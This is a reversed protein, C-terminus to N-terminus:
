IARPKRSPPIGSMLRDYVEEFREACADASHWKMAFKRSEIGIQRRKDADVLLDRLVEYITAESASVLPCTEISDLRTQGAPEAKNLYCVTPRGLMMGERATAGYRGHNLQDVIVDAQAQIFRVDKSAIGTVFELRVNVGEARLREIATMVAGTGKLNREDTARFEFNGVAHYVILEGEKRPLRHREPIEIDPHWVSPDLATTLPERYSKPGSQYDLAPFGECSILDCFMEVKHGWALNMRDNCVHSVNQWVCRDCSGGSWRRFTTQSVGDLCGCVSYGIKVGLRKLKIFDLPMQAFPEGFDFESPFLSMHGRGYFHLMRFRDMNEAFFTEINSRMQPESADFLNLDDGHYFTANPGDPNEISVSIADWGRQRLARALYFFNYYSNHLFVVSRNRPKSLELKALEASEGGLAIFWELQSVRRYLKALQSRRLIAFDGLSVARGFRLGESTGSFIRKLSKLLGLMRLTSTRAFQDECLVISKHPRGEEDFAM